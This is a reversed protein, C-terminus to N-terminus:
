SQVVVGILKCAGAEVDVDNTGDVLLPATVRLNAESLDARSAIRQVMEPFISLGQNHVANFESAIYGQIQNMTAGLNGVAM